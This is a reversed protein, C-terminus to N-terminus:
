WFNFIIDYLMSFIVFILAAICSIIINYPDDLYEQLLIEECM